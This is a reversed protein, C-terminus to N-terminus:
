RITTAFSSAHESATAPSHARRSARTPSPKTNQRTGTSALSAAPPLRPSPRSGCFNTPLMIVTHRGAVSVLSTADGCPGTGCSSMESPPPSSSALPRASPHQMLGNDYDAPQHRVSPRVPCAICAGFPPGDYLTLCPGDKNRWRRAEFGDVREWYERIRDEAQAFIPVAFMEPKDAEPDARPPLAPMKRPPGDEPSGPRSM